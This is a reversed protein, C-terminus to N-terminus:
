LKIKLLKIAFLLVLPFTAKCARFQSSLAMCFSRQQSINEVVPSTKLSATKKLINPDAVM